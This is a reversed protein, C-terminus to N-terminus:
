RLPLLERSLDLSNLRNAGSLAERTVGTVFNGLYLMVEVNQSVVPLRNLRNYSLDM